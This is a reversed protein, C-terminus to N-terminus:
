PRATQDGHSLVLHKVLQQFAERAEQESEAEERVLLQYFWDIAEAKQTAPLEKLFSGEILEVATILLDRNFPQSCNNVGIPYAGATESVGAAGLAPVLLQWPQLKFYEALRVITELEPNATGYLIRGLTGDGVGIRKSAKLRSDTPMGEILRAVNESLAKKVAPLM